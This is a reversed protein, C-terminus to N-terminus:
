RPFHSEDGAPSAADAAGGGLAKGFLAGLDDDGLDVIRAALRGGLRRADRPLFEPPSATNM